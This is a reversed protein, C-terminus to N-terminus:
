GLGRTTPVSGGPEASAQPGTRFESNMGLLFHPDGGTDRVACILAYRHGPELDVAFSSRGGPQLLPGRVYNPVVRRVSGHLQEDIPPIDDTLPLLTLAHGETGENRVDFVERGAPVLPNYDFRFETMTVLVTRPRAPLASRRPRQGSCATALLCTGVLLTSARRIMACRKFFKTEVLPAQPYAM